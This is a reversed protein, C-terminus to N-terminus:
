TYTVSNLFPIDGNIFTFTSFAVSDVKLVVAGFTSGPKVTLIVSTIRNVDLIDNKLELVDAGAVFPRIKNIEETLANLISTQIAPTLNVFGPIEIDITKITVPLYHVQHVALPRRGRELIPKTIDPDLEIVAEVDTLMSAPPTGLGDVSDAPKAEIYLNIENAYGTKAYPYVQQVGQVDQAWLRYDSVSGGNPELRYANLTKSRYEELSEQSLPAVPESAVEAVRDVGAIPATATCKDGILLRSELGAELARVTISDNESVLVYALDLIFLKGPNLSDDNSKFTASAPITAGITGTVNLVYQGAQAPYPNRGLKIRGFRELTGGSSESDATDAFINKQLKGIALYYLKLKAAQVAALVWLFNKGFAPINHGFEAELDALINTHLESITPITIM